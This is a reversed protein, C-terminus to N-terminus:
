YRANRLVAEVLPDALPWSVDLDLVLDGRRGRIDRWGHGAVRVPDLSRARPTVRLPGWPADEVLVSSGSYLAALTVRLSGRLTYGDPDLHWRPDPLLRGIRVVLDGPPSGPRGGGALRLEQGPRCGSPVHLTLRVAPQPSRDVVSQHEGGRLAVLLPLDVVVGLDLGPQSPAAAPPPAPVAPPPPPDTLRKYAAAVAVFRAAAASDNPNRDPHLEHQLRRYSAKVEALPAGEPLGLTAYPSM